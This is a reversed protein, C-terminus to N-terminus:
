RSPREMGASARPRARVDTQLRDQNEDKGRWGQRKRRGRPPLAPHLQADVHIARALGHLIREARDVVADVLGPVAQMADGGDREVVRVQHHAVALGIALEIHIHLVDPVAPQGAVRDEVPEDLDVTRGVAHHASRMGAVALSVLPTAQGAGDVAPAQPCPQAQEGPCALRGTRVCEPTRESLFVVDAAHAHAVLGQGVQAALHRRRHHVFQM